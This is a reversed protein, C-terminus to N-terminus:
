RCASKIVIVFLKNWCWFLQLSQVREESYCVYFFLDSSNNTEMIETDRNNKTQRLKNPRKMGSALLVETFNIYSYLLIRM